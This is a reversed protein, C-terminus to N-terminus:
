GLTLAANVTDKSGRLTPSHIHPSLDVLFITGSFLIFTSSEEYWSDYDGSDLYLLELTLRATVVVTSDRWLIVM